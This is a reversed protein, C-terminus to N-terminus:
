FFVMARDADPSSGDGVQPEGVVNVPQNTAFLFQLCQGFAQICGGSLIVHLYISIFGFHHCAVGVAYLIVDINIVVCM